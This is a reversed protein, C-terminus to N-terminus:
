LLYLMDLVQEILALMGMHANTAVTRSVASSSLESRDRWTRETSTNLTVIKDKGSHSMRAACAIYQQLLFVFFYVPFFVPFLVARLCFFM